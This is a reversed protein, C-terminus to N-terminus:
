RISRIFDEILQDDWNGTSGQIMIVTPGANGKFVTTWQRLTIGQSTGERITVQVKEGRITEQRTEVVSMPAGPQQYQQEMARRVQEEMQEPGGLDGGSFQMLIIVMDRSSSTGPALMVTDYYLFSMGMTQTYGPPVDFDAIRHRVEAVGTPDTRVGSLMRSGLMRLAFFSVVAACLCLAAVVACGILLNRKENQKM